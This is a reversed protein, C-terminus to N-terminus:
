LPIEVEIVDVEGSVLRPLLLDRTARLNANKQELIFSNRVMSEVINGYKDCLDKPPLPLNKSMLEPWHGKYDNFQVLNKTAWHLWYINRKKETHPLFPLVNQIGSFPFQIIRQYCTHNAFVIIPNDPSAIVGPEENHYGIIGSRGQDLVPVDGKPVVTKTNYKKGTQVRTVIDETKVVEWGHPIEGLETGSDVLPVAEHGPFQFEVFWQRYIAQAMDELIQIRRTNNEILDDYASLIAAIKRQTTLDGHYQIPQNRLIALSVFPQAAGTRYNKISRQFGDSTVLYFLYRPDVINPDPKFLAVNKISFEM